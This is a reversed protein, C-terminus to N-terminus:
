LPSWFKMIMIDIEGVNLIVFLYRRFVRDHPVCFFCLTIWNQKLIYFIYGCTVKPSRAHAVAFQAQDKIAPFSCDATGDKNQLLFFTGMEAVM